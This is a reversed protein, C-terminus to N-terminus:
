ITNLQEIIHNIYCLREALKDMQFGDCFRISDIFLNSETQKTQPNYKSSKYLYLRQREPWDNWAGQVKDGMFNITVMGVPSGVKRWCKNVKVVICNPEYKFTPINKIPKDHQGGRMGRLLLSNLWFIPLTHIQPNYEAFIRTQFLNIPHANM